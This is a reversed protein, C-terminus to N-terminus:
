FVVGLNNYIFKKRFYIYIYIYIYIFSHSNTINLNYIYSNNDTYRIEKMGKAVPRCDCYTEWEEKKKEAECNM